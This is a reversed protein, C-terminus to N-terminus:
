REFSIPRSYSCHPLEDLPQSSSRTSARSPAAAMALPFCCRLWRFDRWSWDPDFRLSEQELEDWVVPWEVVRTAWRFCSVVAQGPQRTVAFTVVMRLIKAARNWHLSRIVWVSACKTTLRIGAGSIVEFQFVFWECSRSPEIRWCKASNEQWIGLARDVPWEPCTRVTPTLHDRHLLGIGDVIVSAWGVARIRRRLFGFKIQCESQMCQGWKTENRKKQGDKKYKWSLDTCLVKTRSRDWDVRFRKYTKKTIKM